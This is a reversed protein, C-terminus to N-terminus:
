FEIFSIANEQILYEKTMYVFGVVRCGNAGCISFITPYMEKPATNNNISVKEGFFLGDYKRLELSLALLMEESVNSYELGDKASLVRLDINKEAKFKKGFCREDFINIELDKFVNSFHKLQFSYSKEIELVKKKSEKEKKKFNM